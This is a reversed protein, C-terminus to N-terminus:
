TQGTRLGEWDQPVCTHHAVMGAQLVTVCRYFVGSYQNLL